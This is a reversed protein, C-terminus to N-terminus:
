FEENKANQERWGTLYEIPSYPIKFHVYESVSQGVPRRVDMRSRLGLESLKRTKMRIFAYASGNESMWKLANVSNLFSTYASGNESM